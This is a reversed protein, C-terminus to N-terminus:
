RQFPSEVGLKSAIEELQAVLSEEIEAGNQRYAQERRYEIEGPILIEDFGPRLKSSKVESVFADMRSKFEDVPMFWAIDVAIFTHAVDQRAPDSYLSLGFAGGGIVGTLVDTIMALGYGKHQGIGLLAGQMAAAPDDDISGYNGQGDVLPVRMAFDQALHVLADYIAGDGHPHFKGMTDGVIRASKRHQSGARAGLELMSYLIRRQVPKLGDRVDPLARSVITSMAYDLYAAGIEREFVVDETHGLRDLDGSDNM